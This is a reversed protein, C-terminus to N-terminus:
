NEKTKDLNSLVRKYHEVDLERGQRMDEIITASLFRQLEESPKKGKLSAELILKAIVQSYKTSASVPKEEGIISSAEVDYVSAFKKIWEITLETQGLEYKSIQQPYSDLRDAVDKLTWNKEERLKKLIEYGMDSPNLMSLM